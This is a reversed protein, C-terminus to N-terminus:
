PHFGERAHTKPLTAGPTKTKATVPSSRSFNGVFLACSQPSLEIHVEFHKFVSSRPASNSSSTPLTCSICQLSYCSSRKLFFRLFSLRESRGRILTTSDASNVSRLGQNIQRSVGAIRTQLRPQSLICQCQLACCLMLSEVVSRTRPLRSFANYCSHSLYNKVM